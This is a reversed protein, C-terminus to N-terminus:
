AAKILPAYGGKNSIASIAGAAVAALSPIAGLNKIAEDLFGLLGTGSDYAFKILDSNVITNSLAEYQAQFQAAKGKISDLYKENEAYASGSSDLATGIAAEVQEWNTLVAQLTSQQGTGAVLRTVDARDKDSLDDWVASLERLIQTTNKFTNSDTMIDVKGKTLNLLQTQLKTVSEAAGDSDIGLEELEGATNRLRAAITKMATSSKSWDQIIENMGTYVAITEEMSNGAGAFASGMDAVALGIEDSRVAFNNSVENFADVIQMSDSAAIGFAKMTSIVTSSAQEIDKVGDGVNKYINFTDALSEAENLSYGMRAADATSRITDTLTAGLNKARVEARDLFKSYTTETEDTVQKLETMATDLEIVNNTMQKFQNIAEMLLASASFDVGLKELQARLKGFVTQGKSGMETITGDLTYFKQNIQEVNIDIPSVKIDKVIKNLQKTINQSTSKIDVSFTIQPSKKASINKAIQNLTDSILKGSGSDIGVNGKVGVIVRIDPTNDQAM